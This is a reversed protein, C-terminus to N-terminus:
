RPTRPPQLREVLPLLIARPTLPAAFAALKNLLGPTVRRRGALMAAVGAEAVEPATMPALARLRDLAGGARAWFETDVPGPCLTTVTVGDGRLEQALAEGFSLVFGKAAYYVAMGPGPMFAVVSAVNLIRGRTEKLRPLCAFTLDALARVDLDILEIQEERTLEDVRGRLAFGANNVLAGIEFREPPLAALLADAAHPQGLDLTVVLPAARGDRGIERALAELRDGRRAVLALDWGRRALARAIEAGIGSSAGTVVALRRRL